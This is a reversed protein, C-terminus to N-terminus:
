ALGACITVMGGLVFCLCCGFNFFSLCLVDFGEGCRVGCDPFWVRMFSLREMLGTVFLGIGRCVAVFSFCGAASLGTRLWM